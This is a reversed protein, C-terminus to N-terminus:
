STALPDEAMQKLSVDSRASADYRDHVYEATLRMTEAVADRLRLILDFPLSAPSNDTFYSRGHDDMSDDEAQLVYELHVFVVDYSSALRVSTKTYEPVNLIEPPSSITSRIDILM